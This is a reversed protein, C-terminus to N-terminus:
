KKLRFSLVFNLIEFLQDVTIYLTEGDEVSYYKERLSERKGIENDVKSRFKDIILHAEEDISISNKLSKIFAGKKKKQTQNNHIFSSNNSQSKLELNKSKLEEIESISEKLKKLLAENNENIVNLGDYSMRISDVETLANITNLIGKRIQNLIIDREQSGIIGKNFDREVHNYRGEIQILEDFFVSKPNIQPIIFNLSKLMNEKLLLKAHNVKEQFSM